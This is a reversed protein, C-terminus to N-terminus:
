MGRDTLICEKIATAAHWVGEKNLHVGDIFHAESLQLDLVDLSFQNSLNKIISNYAEITNNMEVNYPYM